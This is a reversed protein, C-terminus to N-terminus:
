VDTNKKDYILWPAHERLASLLLLLMEFQIVVFPEGGDERILQGNNFQNPLINQPLRKVRKCQFTYKGVTVDVTRDLGLAEGNSGWARRAPLGYGEAM